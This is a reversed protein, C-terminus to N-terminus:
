AKRNINFRRVRLAHSQIITSPCAGKTTIGL